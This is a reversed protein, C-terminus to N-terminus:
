RRPAWVQRISPQGRQLLRAGRSQNCLVGCTPCPNDPARPSRTGHAPALNTLDDLGPLHAGYEDRPWDRASIIHDVTLAAPHGCLHCIDSAALVIAKTKRNARTDPGRRGSRRTM